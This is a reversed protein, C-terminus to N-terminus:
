QPFAIEKYWSEIDNKPRVMKYQWPVRRLMTGSLRPLVDNTVKNLREAQDRCQNQLNKNGMANSIKSWLMWIGVNGGPSSTESLSLCVCHQALSYEKREHYLFRALSYLILSRMPAGKPGADTVRLAHDFLTETRDLDGLHWECIAWSHYLKALEENQLSGNSSEALFQAGLFLISQARKFHGMSIEFDAYSVYAKAENSGSVDCALDFLTTARDIEGHRHQFRAWQLLIQWDNPFALAGRSYISNTLSADGHEEEMRAWSDYVHRWKDGLKPRTQSVITSAGNTIGRKFEYYQLAEKYVARAAEINGESEELQALGLWGQSHMKNKGEVSKRLWQKCEFKNGVEYSIYSLGTYFFSKSWTL